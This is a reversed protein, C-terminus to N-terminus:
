ALEPPSVGIPNPYVLGGPAMLKTVLGRLLSLLRERRSGDMQTWPDSALEDTTREVAARLSHGADTLAGSGDLLGLGRLREEAQQWQEETWGRFSRMTPADVGNGHAHATIVAELGDIRHITLAAVHGDFRHERLLTCAHWLALHPSEPVPLGAHGAYLARGDAHLHAAAGLALDAAEAVDSSEIDAGWLRRLAADVVELRAGLVREPTSYSWADPIARHVMAPAFNHFVATVVEPSVTGMPASRSAFYGMRGGRLGAEAYRERAEPAFYVIAHVPEFHTWARRTQNM